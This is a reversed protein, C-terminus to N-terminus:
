PIKIIHNYGHSELYEGADEESFEYAMSRWITRHDGDPLSVYEPSNGAPAWFQIIFKPESSVIKCLYAFKLQKEQFLVSSFGFFEVADLALSQESGRDYLVAKEPNKTSSPKDEWISCFDGDPRLLIWRDKWLMAEIMGRYKPTQISRILWFLLLVSAIAGIGVLVNFNM